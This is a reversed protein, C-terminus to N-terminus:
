TQFRVGITYQAYKLSSEAYKNTLNASGTFMPASFEIISEALIVFTGTNAMPSISGDQLVLKVPLAYSEGSKMM